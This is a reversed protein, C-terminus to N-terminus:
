ENRSTGSTGYFKVCWNQTKDNGEVPIFGSKVEYYAGCTLMTKKGMCSADKKCVQNTRTISGIWSVLLQIKM